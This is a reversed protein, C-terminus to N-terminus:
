GVEIISIVCDSDFFARKIAEELPTSSDFDDRTCNAGSINKNYVELYLSELDTDKDVVTQTIDSSHYDFIAVVFM